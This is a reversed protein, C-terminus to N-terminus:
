GFARALGGASPNCTSNTAANGQPQTKDKCGGCTVAIVLLVIGFYKRVTNEFHGM